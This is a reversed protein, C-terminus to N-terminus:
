DESITLREQWENLSEVFFLWHGTDTEILNSGGAIDVTPLLGNEYDSHECYGIILYIDHNGVNIPLMKEIRVHNAPSSASRLSGKMTRLSKTERVPNVDSLGNMFDDM